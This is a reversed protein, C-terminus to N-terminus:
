TFSLVSYIYQFLRITVGTVTQDSNYLLHVTSTKRLQSSTGYTLNQGNHRYNWTNQVCVCVVFTLPIAFFFPLVSAIVLM